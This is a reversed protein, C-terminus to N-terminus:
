ILGVQTYKSHQQLAKELDVLVPPVQQDQRLAEDPLSAAIGRVVALDYMAEMKLRTMNQAHATSKGCASLVHTCSSM